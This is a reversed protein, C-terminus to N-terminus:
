GKPIKKKRTDDKTMGKVKDAKIRELLKSAPEDNPDQEVLRGEFAKKLISQRLADGQRLATTITEELKDCVSLRTEIESVIQHQEELPPILLEFKRIDNQFLHPTASGTIRKRVIGQLKPGSLLHYLFEPIFIEMGRIILLSSNVTAESPLKNIIGIKGIGAGDKCLLIDKEKLMIEPSELYREESIHYADKFEVYKGYNLSHVSLFMPGEITYEDKTLGRWGIRGAIYILKNLTANAWTKIEESRRFEFDYNKEIRKIGNKKAELFNKKRIESVQRLYDYATNLISNEKRWEETLRGEFAWKLVAQRYIKLQQHATKLSEIGKDLESFLEEIKSVIRHQEPFPPLPIEFESFFLTTVRKQGVSGTMNSEAIRRFQQQIISYFIYKAIVCERPRSVHFETSGFGVENKLDHLVVCKGNEMCPTIKAFIVDGNTFPTFGKKVDKYKRFETLYFINKEEEVLKMPLFSVETNDDINKFPLKPNIEAIESHKVVEWSPPIQKRDVM